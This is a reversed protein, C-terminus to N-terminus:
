RPPVITLRSTEDAAELFSLLHPRALAVCGETPGYDPKALHLFIASGKGTVPPSDNYGLIVILDYLSDNRWLVEHSGDFPLKVLRNYDTRSPDDCWGDTPRLSRTALMSKPKPVVRDARYYLSRMPWSGIPTAGDGERKDCRLGGRGVACPWLHEGHQAQANGDFSQRVILDM